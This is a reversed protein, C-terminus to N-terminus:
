GDVRIGGRESIELGAQKALHNEPRIGVSLIVIDCEINDGADTSVVIGDGNKSFSTVGKELECTVGNETLHAQVMAAMEPDLPMMIQDLMEIVTTKVGRSALNEAMEIGIYGGGVIVASRAGESDVHAKIRDTDPINRISFINELDIGELPPRLPEAGPSLIVKDYSEWYTEGTNLDKVEVKKSKRDLATVEARNRIDINYREKFKKPTTVFLADREKIVEGIYYPLGCNAFSIYEGREFLVIEAQEDLRRARAAATAGGAVGGIIVLKTKGM